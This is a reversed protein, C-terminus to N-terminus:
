LFKEEQNKISKKIKEVFDPMFLKGDVHDSGPLQLILFLLAGM